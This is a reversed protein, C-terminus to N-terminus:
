YYARCNRGAGGQKLLLRLQNKKANLSTVVSLGFFGLRESVYKALKVDAGTTYTAIARVKIETAMAADYNGQGQMCPQLDTDPKTCCPSSPNM